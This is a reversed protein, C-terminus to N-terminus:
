IKGLRRLVIAAQVMCIADARDVQNTCNDLFKSCGPFYAEAKALSARKPSGILGTAAKWKQPALFIPTHKGCAGEIIGVGRMFEGSSAVGARPSTHVDELVIITNADKVALLDYIKGADPVMKRGHPRLPMNEVRQIKGESYYVFAGNKGPDIGIIEYM